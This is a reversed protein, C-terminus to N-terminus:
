SASPSRKPTTTIRRSAPSGPPWSRATRASSSRESPSRRNRRRACGPCSGGGACSGTTRAPRARGPAGCRSGARGPPGPSPAPLDLRPAAPDAVFFPAVALDLQDALDAALFDGLVRAGGEVLLRAVGREALDQLMFDASVPDGADILVASDKIKAALRL